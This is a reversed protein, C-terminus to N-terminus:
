SHELVWLPAKKFLSWVSVCMCLCLCNSNLAQCLEAGAQKYCMFLTYLIGMRRRKRRLKKNMKRWMMRMMMIMLISMMMM